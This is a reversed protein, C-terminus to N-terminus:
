LSKLYELLAARDSATLADGYTHGQNGYGPLSADWTSTDGKTEQVTYPWGVDVLDYSSASFSRKYLDPRVSSDLVGVLTPVSGNHFYPATAWIGDLPPAVYGDGFELWAGHDGEAFWSTNYWDVFASESGGVLLLPDTGVEDLSVIVNPYTDGDPHYVGHCTACEALFVAEGAEALSADIEGPFAPAELTALYALLHPFDADIREAETVDEMTLLASAMLFRGFDGRGIGAAFMANKKKLHWWPPVDAPLVQDPYPLSAQGSWELTSRDRHAALLAALTDAFSVGRTETVLEPGVKRLARTYRRLNAYEPSDNGYRQQTLSELSGAFASADVHSAVSTNGLGIVYAGALEAGHCTLCNQVAARGGEATDIATYEPPLLANDGSRGLVNAPDTGYFELFLDLPIGASVTDGELLVARGLDPDGERQPTAPIFASGAPPVPSTDLVVPPEPTSCALLLLM